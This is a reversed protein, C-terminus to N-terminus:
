VALFPFLLFLTIIVLFGNLSPVGFGYCSLSVVNVASNFLTKM